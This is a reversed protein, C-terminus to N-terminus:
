PKRPKKQRAVTDGSAQSPPPSQIEPRIWRVRGRREERNREANLAVLRSLLDHEALDHPWNYADAVADDLRRHMDLLVACLGHDHISKEKATLADGSRLKAIVGELGADQTARLIDNGDHQRAVGPNAVELVTRLDPAM